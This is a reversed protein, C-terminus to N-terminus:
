MYVCHTLIAGLLSRVFANAKIRGRIWSLNCRETVTEGTWQFGGEEILNQDAAILCDAERIYQEMSEMRGPQFRAIWYQYQDAEGRILSICANLHVNMSKTDEHIWKGEAIICSSREMQLIGVVQRLKEDDTSDIM